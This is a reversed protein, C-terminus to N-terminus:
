FRQIDNESRPVTSSTGLQLDDKIEQISFETAVLHAVLLALAGDLGSSPKTEVTTSSRSFFGGRVSIDFLPTNDAVTPAACRDYSSDGIIVWQSVVVNDKKLTLEIRDVFKQDTGKTTRQVYKVMPGNEGNQKERVNIEEEWTTIATGKAFVELIYVGARGSAVGAAGPSIVAQTELKFKTMIRPGVAHKFQWGVAHTLAAQDTVAQNRNQEQPRSNNFYSHNFYHDDPDSDYGNAFQGHGMFRTRQNPGVSQGNIVIIITSNAVQNPWTYSGSVYREMQYRPRETIKASWIVGGKGMPQDAPRVFNELDVIGCGRRNEDDSKNFWLWMNEQKDEKKSPVTAGKYVGYDRSGLFGGLTVVSATFHEGNKPEPQLNKPIPPIVDFSFCGGM